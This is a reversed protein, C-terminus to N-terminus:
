FTHESKLGKQPNIIKTAGGEMGGELNRTEYEEYEQHEKVADSQVFQM